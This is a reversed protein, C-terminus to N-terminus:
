CSIKDVGLFFQTSIHSFNFKSYFFLQIWQFLFFRVAVLWYLEEAKKIQKSIRHTALYAYSINGIKYHHEVINRINQAYEFKGDPKSLCTLVWNTKNSDACM